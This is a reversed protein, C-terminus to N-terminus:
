ATLEDRRLRALHTRRALAEVPSQVLDGSSSGGGMKLVRSASRVPRSSASSRGSRAPGRPPRRRRRSPAVGLSCGARFRESASDRRSPRPGGSGRPDKRRPSGPVVDSSSGNPDLGGHRLRRWRRVATPARAPWAPRDRVVPLASTGSRRASPHSAHAPGLDRPRARGDRARSTDSTADRMPARANM